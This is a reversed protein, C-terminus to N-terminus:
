CYDSRTLCGIDYWSCYNLPSIDVYRLLFLNLWHVSYFIIIIEYGYLITVEQWVAMIMGALYNLPFFCWVYRLLFMNLWHVPYIIIIMEFGYLTIAEQCVALIM